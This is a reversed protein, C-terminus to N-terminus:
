EQLKRDNVVWYLLSDTDDLMESNFKYTFKQVCSEEETNFKSIIEDCESLPKGMNDALLYPTSKLQIAEIDSKFQYNIQYFHAIIDDITLYDILIQHNEFYLDYFKSIYQFLPYGKKGGMFWTTWKAKSIYHYNDHGENLTLFNQYKRKEIFNQMLESAVVTSDVWVGGHTALLNHRVVDSFGTIGFQGSELRKIINPSIDVFQKYNEQTIVQIKEKGFLATMIDINKKVLKPASNYGQWWMIWIKGESFIDGSSMESFGHESFYEDTVNFDHALYKLTKEHLKEYATPLPHIRDLKGLIQTCKKLYSLKFKDITLQKM